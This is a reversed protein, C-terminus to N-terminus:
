TKNYMKNGGIEHVGIKIREFGFSLTLSLMEKSM